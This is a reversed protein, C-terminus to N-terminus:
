PVPRAPASAAATLVPGFAPAVRLAGRRNLHGADRYLPEGAALAGCTRPGCLIGGPRVVRVLGRAELARALPAAASLQQRYQELTIDARFPAGIARARAARDPAAALIFPIDEVFYVEVGLARIDAVTRDLAARAEAQTFLPDHRTRRVWVGRSDPRIFPGFTPGWKGAIIVARPRERAIIELIRRNRDQCAQWSPESFGILPTCGLATLDYGAVGQRRALMDLGDRYMAAHSDGWLVFSPRRSPDGILCTDAYRELPQGACRFAAKSDPETLALTEPAFREPLGGSLRLGVGYLCLALSVALAAGFLSKRTLLADPGRFPREIWRWSAFAVPVSLGALVIRAPTVWAEDLVYYSGFVIMPWHWLYLSYSALGVLVLPRVGLLRAVRSGPARAGHIVLAAGLCPALANLGPFPSAPTLRWIAWTIAALGVVALADGIRRDVPARASSVALLVGVLFEWARSLPSYFALNPAHEAAWASYGFSTATMLVLLPVLLRAAWRGVVALLVPFVIYFQEEVALSWTHLLPASGTAFGFYDNWRAFQINSAFVTIAALSSGFRQLDQPLLILAAAGSVALMALLAPLIRRVRREYFAIISFRGEAQERQILGAILYGSIVFFVDVGVFGGSLGPVRAHFLVVALVAIARLGDIEPRYGSPATTM